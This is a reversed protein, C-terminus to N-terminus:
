TSTPEETPPFDVDTPIEQPPRVEVAGAPAFLEGLRAVTDKGELGLQKRLEAIRAKDVVRKQGNVEFEM